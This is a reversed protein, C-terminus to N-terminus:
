LRHPVYIRDNDQLCRLHVATTNWATPIGKKENSFSLRNWIGAALNRHGKVSPHFCDARSLAQIPGDAVSFINGPQYAVSFDPDNEANWDNILARLAVDYNAALKDMAARTADGVPGPTLACGCEISLHPLPLPSCWPDYMTKAYIDSVKLNGIINVLLRPVVARVQEVAKFVGEAYAQVDGLYHGCGYQCQDNAGVMVNLFTWGDNSKPSDLYQRILYETEHALNSAHAGSIAANMGAVDPELQPTCMDDGVPCLTTYQKGHSGGVLGSAYHNVLNALTIAGEDAGTVYSVGRWEFLELASRSRAYFGASVSDGLAMIISIDDPRVDRANSPTPRSELKPCDKIDTVYQGPFVDMPPPPLNPATHPTQKAGASAIAAGLLLHAVLM